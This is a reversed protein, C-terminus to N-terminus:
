QGPCLFDDDSVETDVEKDMEARMKVQITNLRLMEKVYEKTAGIQRIAAKTNDSMFKEAAEDMKALEEDTIEVKYDAMHDELLYLTEINDTGEGMLDQTWMTNGFMTGLQGDYVAQQYRAMFNMFGLSIEEGELTAGAKNADIANGCGAFVSMGMAAALLLPLIRKAKM